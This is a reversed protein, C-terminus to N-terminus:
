RLSSTIATQAKSIPRSYHSLQTQDAAAM